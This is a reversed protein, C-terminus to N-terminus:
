QLIKKAEELLEVARNFHAITKNGPMEMNTTSSNLMGCGAEASDGFSAFIKSEFGMERAINLYKNADENSLQHQDGLTTKNVTCFDIKFVQPTLEKLMTQLKATDLSIYKGDITKYNVMLLIGIGIKEGTVDYLQCCRGLFDRYDFTKNIPMINTRDDGIANLSFHLTVRNAFVKDRCDQILSPMFDTIGCTSIIYRSVKQGIKQMAYDTMQISRKVAPYNFGPEGQGMFAFERMHGRVNPYSPCDSDYEAMFICQLAIDDATLPLYNVTGTQCFICQSNFTSLHCGISTSVTYASTQKDTENPFLRLRENFAISEVHHNAGKQWIYKIGDSGLGGLLSYGVLTFPFETKAIKQKAKADEEGEQSSEPYLQNFVKDCPKDEIWAKNDRDWKHMQIEVDGTDYLKGVSFGAIVQDDGQKMCGVNVQKGSDGFQSTGNDHEHGCLYLRVGQADFYRAVEKRETNEYMNLGHHGIAIIPKQNGAKDLLETLYKCGIIIHNEDDDLGAVIATNLLLLRCSGMDVINHPNAGNVQLSKPFSERITSYFDFDKGLEGIVGADITGINPKYEGRIGNIQYERTKSRDLDHNGPVMIVRNDDIHLLSTISKIYNVVDEPNTQTKKPAYRYDGSLILTDCQPNIAKLYDPLSERFRADNFTDVVPQFHIDSLHLWSFIVKSM